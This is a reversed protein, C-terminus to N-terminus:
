TTPNSIADLKDVKPWHWRWRGRSAIFLLNQGVLYRRLTASYCNQQKISLFPLANVVAPIKLRVSVSIDHRRCATMAGGTFDIHARLGLRRLMYYEIGLTTQRYFPDLQSQSISLRCRTGKSDKRSSGVEYNLCGVDMHAM